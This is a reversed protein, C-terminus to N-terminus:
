DLLYWKEKPIIGKKVLSTIDIIITELNEQNLSCHLKKAYKADERANKIDKFINIIGFGSDRIKFPDKSFVKRTRTAYLYYTEEM